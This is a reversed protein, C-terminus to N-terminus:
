HFCISLLCNRLCPWPLLPAPFCPFLLVAMIKGKCCAFSIEVLDSGTADLSGYRRPLRLLTCILHSLHPPLLPAQTLAIDWYFLPIPSFLLLQVLSRKWRPPPSVRHLVAVLTPPIVYALITRISPSLPPLSSLNVFPEDIGVCSVLCLFRMM